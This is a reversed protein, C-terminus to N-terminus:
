SVDTEEKKRKDEYEGVAGICALGVVVSFEQM